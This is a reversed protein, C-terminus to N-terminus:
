QYLAVLRNSFKNRKKEDKNLMRQMAPIDSFQYRTTRPNVLEYADSKRKSMGHVTGKRPFLKSFKDIKLSQKAFKLCM